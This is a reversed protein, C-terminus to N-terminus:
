FTYTLHVDGDSPGRPGVGLRPHLVLERRATARRSAEAASEPDGSWDATTLLVVGTGVSVAALPYMIMQLAEYTGAEDCAQIAGAFADNEPGVRDVVDCVNQNSPVQERAPDLQDDLAGIRASAVVGVVAFGVGLGIAGFGAIKQWDPGSAPAEPQLTMETTGLPKVDVFAELDTTGSGRVTLAHRGAPLTFTAQGGVIRGIPRGGELVQGDVTGVRLVVKGDPAGGTLAELAESAVRRLSEDNAETLNSSYTVATDKSGQGRTWLHLEGTVTAGDKRGLTGWLLREAKLHDAMKTECAADPPEACELSVTLVELAWDGEQVSWGPTNRLTQKLATTLAEAQDLADDTQISVVAVPLSEAASATGPPAACLAASCALLAAAPGRRLRAM